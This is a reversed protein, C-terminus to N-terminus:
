LDIKVNPRLCFRVVRLRSECIFSTGVQDMPSYEVFPNRSFATCNSNSIVDLVRFLKSQFGSYHTVAILKVTFTKKGNPANALIVFGYPSRIIKAQEIKFPFRLKKISSPKIM